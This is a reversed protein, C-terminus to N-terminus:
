IIVAASAASNEPPPAKGPNEELLLNKQTAQKNNNDETSHTRSHWPSCNGVLQLLLVAAMGGGEGPGLSSPNCRSKPNYNSLFQAM